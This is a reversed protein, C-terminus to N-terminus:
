QYVQIEQYSSPKLLRQLATQYDEITFSDLAEKYGKAFQEVTLAGDEHTVQTAIYSWWTPSLTQQELQQTFNDLLKNFNNKDNVSPVQEVFVLSKANMLRSVDDSPENITKTLDNAYQINWWAWPRHPSLTFALQVFDIHQQQNLTSVLDAGWIQLSIWEKISAVPMLAIASRTQWLDGENQQITSSVSEYHIAEPSTKSLQYGESITNMAKKVNQKTEPSMDGVIFITAASSKLSQYYNTVQKLSVDAISDNMNITKDFFLVNELEHQVPPNAQYQTQWTDFTRPKFDPQRLWNTVLSLTPTLYQPENSLTLGITQSEHDYYSNASAALPALRQNISATSLPLSDSMLMALTTQILKINTTASRFSFRIELKNSDQWETQKLWVVPIGSTTTWKEIQPTPLKSSTASLNLLWIALTCFLMVAALVPRSFLPKSDDSM